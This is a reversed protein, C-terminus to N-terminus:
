KVYKSYGQHLGQLTGQLFVYTVNLLLTTGTHYRREYETVIWQMLHSRSNHAYLRITNSTYEMEMAKYITQPGLMSRFPACENKMENLRQYITTHDIDRNEM